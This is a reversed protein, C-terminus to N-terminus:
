RFTELGVNLSLEVDVAGFALAASVDVVVAVLSFTFVFDAGFGVFAAVYIEAILLKLELLDRPQHILQRKHSERHPIVLNATIGKSRPGTDPQISQSLPIPKNM